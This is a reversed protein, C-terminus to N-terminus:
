AEIGHENGKVEQKKELAIALPLREQPYPNGDEDIQQWSRAHYYRKLIEDRHIELIEEAAPNAYTIKGEPTVRVMGDVLTQLMQDLRRESERLAEEVRKRAALSDLWHRLTVAPLNAITMEQPPVYYFNDYMETGVVAIPHTRLIDLLVEPDFRRRDYQCISLARRQPFFKNLKTEYEILRESGPLGRLAWSMEGTIRLAAYGEELAQATEARLMAIMADPDFTDGRTYTERSTLFVLQGSELYTEVEMGADRLYGRVTESTHADVIYLVKENRELGYRLYPTLVARHEEETEYMCCLHDGPELNTITHELLATRKRLMREMRKRETIDQKVGIVRVPQGADNYIIHSRSKIHIVEGTQRHLCRYEHDFPEGTALRQDFVTMVEDFDDPHVLAQFEEQTYRRQETFGFIRLFEESGEWYNNVLDTEYSGMKAIQQAEKLREESKRLAEEAQKRETIDIAFGDIAFAGDPYRRSIRANMAIWIRAGTRTYAEYEFGEVDGKEELEAIFTRRRDPDVYLEQALDNYAHIAAEKTEYGVMKAMWMNVDLVAGTSTTRFIGVPAREVLTEYQAERERLTEDMRKRENIETQLQDKLRRVEMLDKFRATAIIISQDLDSRTAPHTLCYGAGADLAKNMMESSDSDTLIIIPTPRQAMIRQTAELGDLDALTIDMFIVDPELEATLTIAAEGSDTEGVIIHGEAELMGRLKEGVLIDDEVILVRKSDSM